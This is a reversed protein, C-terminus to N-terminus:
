FVLGLGLLRNKVEAYTERILFGTAASKLKVIVEKSKADMIIAAIDDIAVLAIDDDTKFEVFM